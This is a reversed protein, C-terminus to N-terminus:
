VFCWICLRLIASYVSVFTHKLVQRKLNIGFTQVKILGFLVSFVKRELEGVNGFPCHKKSPKWVEGTLGAALLLIHTSSFSYPDNTSPHYQCPFVSTSSSFDM